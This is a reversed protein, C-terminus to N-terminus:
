WGFRTWFVTVGCSGIRDARRSTGHKRLEPPAENTSRYVEVAVVDDPRLANLPWRLWAPVGEDPHGRPPEWIARGDIAYMMCGRGLFTRINPFRGSIGDMGRGWEWNFWIKEQDDLVEAAHELEMARIDAPDLFIGRGWEEQRRDFQVRGRNSRATVTIPALVVADPLIRFEVSVTDGEEVLVAQSLTTAYGIRRAEVQYEEDGRPIPLLFAGAADSVVSLLRREEQVLTIEADPVPQLNSDDVLYGVM